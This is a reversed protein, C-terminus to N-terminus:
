WPLLLAVAFDSISGQTAIQLPRYAGSHRDSSNRPGIGIASHKTLSKATARRCPCIDSANARFAHNQKRLSLL